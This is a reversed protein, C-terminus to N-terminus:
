RSISSPVNAGDRDIEGLTAFPTVEPTVSTLLEERFSAPVHEKVQPAWVPGGRTGPRASM